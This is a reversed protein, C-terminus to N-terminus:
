VCLDLCPPRDERRLPPVLCVCVARTVDPGDAREALMTSLHRHSTAIEDEGLPRVRINRFRTVKGDWDGGGHVQVAIGEEAPLRVETDVFDIIKHSNLWM